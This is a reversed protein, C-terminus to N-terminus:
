SSHMVSSVGNRRQGTRSWAKHWHFFLLWDAQDEGAARRGAAVQQTAGAVGEVDEGGVDVLRRFEPAEIDPAVDMVDGPEFGGGDCHFHGCADDDGSVRDAPEVALDDALRRVLGVCAADETLEAAGRM